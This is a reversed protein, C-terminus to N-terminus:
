TAGSPCVPYESIKDVRERFSFSSRPSLSLLSNRGQSSFFNKKGEPEGEITSGIPGVGATSKDRDKRKAQGWNKVLEEYPWFLAM